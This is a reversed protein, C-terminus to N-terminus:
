KKMGEVSFLERYWSLSNLYAQYVRDTDINKLLLIRSAEQWSAIEYERIFYMLDALPGSGELIADQINKTVKVMTLAEEMPKDLIVDLVSFLGMLFTESTFGALEFDQSLNEAFKARVMSIRMIESPRDSCLEKTVATNIWKKLERQGLMAAAHRVSSIGSNVSIRNVMKLLSIVLAPDQGIIDAAETLDYDPNNVTNLLEIYNSKVPAMKKDAAVRPLRFFDGEYYDYGGDVSGLKEFDENSDVNVAVMRIHPYVKSFYLKAKDIYLKKHDLLIFDMLNLIERYEEFQNVKLKRIALRFKKSKLDRLRNIFVDVPKVNSDMLLVIREPDVQCQEELNSFMSVESVEVFVDGDGSLLDVGMSNVIEFGMVSSATDLIGTGMLRPKLLYNDKQAFISYAKVEMNKDFLPILAALM